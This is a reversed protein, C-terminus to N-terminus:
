SRSEAVADDDKVQAFKEEAETSSDSDYEDSEIAMIDASSRRISLRASAMATVAIMASKLKMRANFTKLKQSTFLLSNRQLRDARQIMWRSRIAQSSTLRRSPDTVLLKSLLDKAENSINSWAEEPFSFDGIFICSIKHIANQESAFVSLHFQQMSEGKVINQFLEKQSRGTFPLDGALILYTIVGVSWM